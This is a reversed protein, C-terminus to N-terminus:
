AYKSLFSPFSMLIDVFRMIILDLNGGMYGSILGLSVGVTAAVLTPWIMEILALRCGWILLSLLDRGLFDTGLPYRLSPPSLRAPLNVDRYDERAIYQPCIGCIVLTLIIVLSIRLSLDERAMKLIDRFISRREM